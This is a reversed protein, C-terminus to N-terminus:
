LGLVEKGLQEKRPDAGKCVIAVVELDRLIIDRDERSVLFRLNLKVMKVVDEFRCVFISTLASNQGFGDGFSIRLFEDHYADL